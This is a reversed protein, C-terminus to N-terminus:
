MVIKSSVETSAVQPMAQEPVTAEPLQEPQAEIVPVAPISGQQLGGFNSQGIGSWARYQWDEEPAANPLFDTQEISSWARYQWQDDGIEKAPFDPQTIGGSPKFYWSDDPKPSVALASTVGRKVSSIPAFSSSGSLVSLLVALQFKM